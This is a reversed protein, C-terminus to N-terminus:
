VLEWDSIHTGRLFDEIKNRKKGAMQLELVSIFCDNAAIKLMNKNDCQIAKPFPSPETTPEADFIKFPVEEGRPNRLTLTAAPYPSLGRVQRCVEVATRSFDLRLTDRYLKPAACPTGEQPRPTLTAAALGDLTRVVLQSGMAMLRDHLTAATENPAIATSQQLLINGEDIAHNLLFTTVGTQAEGNIIAWNIPAAGRYRPLLSAHLNM